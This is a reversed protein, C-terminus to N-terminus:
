YKRGINLFVHGKAEEPAIERVTLPYIVDENSCNAFVLSMQDQHASTNKVSEQQKTFYCSCKTFSMWNEQENPILGFDLQTIASAVTNQIGNIYM